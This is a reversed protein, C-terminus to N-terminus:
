STRGNSDHARTAARRRARVFVLPGVVATLAFFFWQGAYGLHMSTNAFSARARAPEAPVGEGELERLVIPAVAYPLAGAVSDAVLWRTSWLMQRAVPTLHWLPDGDRHPGELPDVLGVVARDLTDPEPPPIATAADPSPVFGRDVLVAVGGDARLLPTVVHVGPEGDRSRGVLLIQRAEDFRGRVSWRAPGAGPLLAAAADAPLPRPPAALAVRLKANLAERERYRGLQWFGLATCTGATAVVALVVLANRLVPPM